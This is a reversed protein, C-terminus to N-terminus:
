GGAAALYAKGAEELAEVQSRWECRSDLCPAQLAPMAQAHLQLVRELTAQAPIGEAKPLDDPLGELLERYNQFAGVVYTRILKDEHRLRLTEAAALFTSAADAAEKQFQSQTPVCGVSLLAVLLAAVLPLRHRVPRPSSRARM